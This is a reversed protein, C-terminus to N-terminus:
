YIAIASIDSQKRIYSLQRPALSPTSPALSRPSQMGFEEEGIGTKELEDEAQAGEVVNETETGDEQDDSPSRAGNLVDRIRKEYEM